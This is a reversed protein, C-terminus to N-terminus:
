KLVGIKRTSLDPPGDTISGALRMFPRENNSARAKELEDRVIRGKPLGTKYARDDLWKALEPTFAYLSPHM